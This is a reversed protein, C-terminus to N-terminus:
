YPIIWGVNFELGIGGVYLATKNALFANRVNFRGSDCAFTLNTDDNCIVEVSHKRPDGQVKRIGAGLKIVKRQGDVLCAQEDSFM